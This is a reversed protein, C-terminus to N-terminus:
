TVTDDDLFVKLLKIMREERAKRDKTKPPMPTNIILRSFMSAFADEVIAKCGSPLQQGSTGLNSPESTSVESAIRALTSLLLVFSVSRSPSDSLTELIWAREEDRALQQKTKVQTLIGSELRLWIEESIIGDQLNALFELLTESIVELRHLNSVKTSLHQDFPQDNDLSERIALKLDNRIAVDTLNWCGEAFPWDFRNSWPAVDEGVSNGRMIWDAIVNEVLEEIAETLRFLERPASWMVPSSLNLLDESVFAKTESSVGRPRQHQLKRIGGEPIRILKDISRGFSSPLWKGRITVFHDRGDQVRLVLIDDISQIGENLCRVIDMSSIEVLLEVTCADGPELTHTQKTPTSFNDGSDNDFRVFLWEPATGARQGVGIPRDIFGFSAKVRGTNAITVTRHKPQGYRIDGFQVIETEHVNGDMLAEESRDKPDIVVSITPRGENEAKDLEKAVEQYIKSKLNPIVAEYCLTFIADLPKHDSSLVRQHATYYDLSIEDEFGAKTVVFDREADDAEGEEDEEYDGDIDPNYEFLTDEDAAAADIGEARLQDDRKKAAQEEAMKSDYRLKDRRTRYLIRDCWSPARKKESSDFCGLSGIDYKYTPLFKIDGERWGEHFAKGAKQQQQLQDHRLLSTLTAQLSSPDLELASDAESTTKSSRLRSETDSSLISDESMSSDVSISSSSEQSDISANKLFLRKQSDPTAQALEDEIKLSSLVPVDYENRTHLMLLRRVDEGPISDLRYNLDGFWFSFDEDGITEGKAQQGTVPDNIPDFRTRGLIQSADWDRRDLAAKDVGASLHSNVFVMRTTEGLVIRATVAGKNGMYGMLGTGVSTTSVNSIEPALQPSAYILLLLGVLQQEAVLQYGHPLAEQLAKKWKSAATGDTYPKLAETASNIDVVEQLGLAYIGVEEDHPLESFDNKPITSDKRRFREEQEVSSERQRSAPLSATEKDETIGRDPHIPLCALAESLGQGRAFWGGIDKETGKLAAVNWTGVKVRIKRQTTYEARRAHVAQSLTQYEETWPGNPYAGPLAQAASEISSRPREPATM